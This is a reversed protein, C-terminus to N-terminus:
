EEGTTEATTEPVTEQAPADGPFLEVPAYTNRTLTDTEQDNYLTTTSKETVNGAADYTYNTTFCYGTHSAVEKQIRGQSDYTYETITDSSSASRWHIVGNGDIGYEYKTSNTQVWGYSSSYSYKKRWSYSNLSTLNGNEDYEYVYKYDANGEGIGDGAWYLEQTKLGQDNYTYEYSYSSGSYSVYIKNLRILNKADDYTRIEINLLNDKEDYTRLTTVNGDYEYATRLVAFTEEYQIYQPHNVNYQSVEETLVGNEYTYETEYRRQGQVDYETRTIRTAFRCSERLTDSDKYGSIQGYLDWAAKNEGAALLAAAKRYDCELAQDASDSYDGLSLFAERAEDFSGAELLALAADYMAIRPDETPAATTEPVTEPPQTTTQTQAPAAGCAALSLLIMLSLILATLRKM